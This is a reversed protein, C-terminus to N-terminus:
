WCTLVSCFAPKPEFQCRSCDLEQAMVEPPQHVAALVGSGLAVLVGTVWLVRLIPRFM